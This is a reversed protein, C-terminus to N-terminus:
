KRHLKPKPKPKPKAKPKAPAIRVVRTVADGATAGSPSVPTLSLLSPTAASRRLATLVSSPLKFRLDNSGARISVTGLATAGLKAQVSGAGNSEVILRLETDRATLRLIEPGFLELTPALDDGVVPVVPTNVKIQDPPAEPTAPTNTDVTMSTSVVFDAADVNTSANPIALYGAGSQYTCTDWPIAASATNGDVALQVPSGGKVDWFFAPKSLTGAPLAVSINLTAAYCIHTADDDGRTFKLYRASLHNLTVHQAAFTASDVGTSTTGVTLPKLGQLAKVSYGATLQATIWDNYTDSLTTGKAVLAAAVSQIATGAGAAGQAYIDKVFSSGYKEILFQIFPWRTYGDDYYANLDCKYGGLPDRCDLSMDDHAPALPFGGLSYGDARYGMWDASAEDLWFESVSPTLWIGFQILHFLEHAVVHYLLGTDRDLSIYGSSTLGAGDADAVGLPGSLAVVYIDIRDDGGLGADAPPAPYGDALEAAYAREAMGAVDAAKVQTIPAPASTDTDYHVLFHTTGLTNALAAARPAALSPSAFVCVGVGVSALLVLRRLFRM